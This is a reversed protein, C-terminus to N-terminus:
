IETRNELAINITEKDFYDMNGGYPIGYAIRTTKIGLPKLLESLYIISAEGSVNPSFALIIERVDDKKIRELLGKVKVDADKSSVIDGHMVYYLGNYKDAKEISLVDKPYEVVCIIHNDRNEDSCIRCPDEDTINNCISCLKTNKKADVISDALQSVREDDLNVIFYALREATKSGIGPLRSLQNILNDIHNAM